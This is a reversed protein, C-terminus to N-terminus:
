QSITSTTTTTTTTKKDSDKMDFDFGRFTKSDFKLMGDTENKKMFDFKFLEETSNMKAFEPIELTKNFGDFKIGETNNKSFLDFKFLDGFAFGKPETSNKDTTNKDEVELGMIHDWSFHKMMDFDFHFLGETENTKTMNMMDWTKNDMKFNMYDSFNFEKIPMDHTLNFEKLEWFNKMDVEKEIETSNKTTNKDSETKNSYFYKDLESFWKSSAAEMTWKNVTEYDKLITLFHTVDTHNSETVNKETENKEAYMDFIHESDPFYWSKVKLFDIETSNKDETSNFYKSFDAFKTFVEGDKVYADFLHHSETENKSETSNKETKSLWSLEEWMKTDNGKYHVTELELLEFHTPVTKNYSDTENKTDNKDLYSFLDHLDSFEKGKVGFDMIHIMLDESEVDTDNKEWSKSIDYEVKTTNKEVETSNKETDNKVDLWSLHNISPIKDFEMKTMNFDIEPLAFKTLNFDMKPLDFKTINFNTMSNSM